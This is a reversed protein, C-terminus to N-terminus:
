PTLRLEGEAEQRNIRAKSALVATRCEHCLGYITGTVKPGVFVDIRKGCWVCKITLGEQRAEAVLYSGSAGTSVGRGTRRRFWM